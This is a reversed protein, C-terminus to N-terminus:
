FLMIKGTCIIVILIVYNKGTCIIVILIVDNKGTGKM